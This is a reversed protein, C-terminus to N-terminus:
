RPVMFLDPLNLVRNGTAYRLYGEESVLSVTFYHRLPEFQEADVAIKMEMTRTLGSKEATQPSPWFSYVGATSQHILCPNSWRSDTMGVPEGENTLLRVKVGTIPEFSTSHFLRGVIQPINFFIGQRSAAADVYAKTDEAAYPRRTENIREIGRYVLATLDAERQLKEQYDLEKHALGRGSTQYQPSIRNLVFCAVDARCFDCVCFGAVPKSQEADFIEAVKALVEEEASNHVTM